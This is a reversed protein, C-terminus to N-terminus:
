TAYNGSRVAKIFTEKVPFSAAAHYWLFTQRASPLDFIINIAETTHQNTQSDKQKAHLPLKWLGTHTCRDAALVPPKTATAQTTYDDYITAGSKDFVTTYGADALKPVSSHLGPVINIERATERLDHKLNM